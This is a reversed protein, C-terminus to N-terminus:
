KGFRFTLSLDAALEEFTYNFRSDNFDRGSDVEKFPFNYYFDTLFYANISWRKSLHINIGVAPSFGVMLSLTSPIRVSTRGLFSSLDYEAPLYQYWTLSDASAPTEYDYSYYFREWKEFGVIIDLALCLKVRRGGFRHEYGVRFTHRDTNDFYGSKVLVLKFSDTRGFEVPQYSLVDQNETDYETLTSRYAARIASNNNFFHRFTFGYAQNEAYNSLLVALIPSTDLSIENKYHLISWPRKISATDQACLGFYAIFLLGSFLLNKM